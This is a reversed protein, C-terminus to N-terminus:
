EYNSNVENIVRPLEKLVESFCTCGRSYMNDKLKKEILNFDSDMMKRFGTTFYSFDGGESSFRALTITDDDKIVNRIKNNLDNRLEEMVGYMSGSTDGIFIYNVRKRVEQVENPAIVLKQKHLFLQTM